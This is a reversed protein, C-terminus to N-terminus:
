RKGGPPQLTSQKGEVTGISRNMEKLEKLVSASFESVEEKMESMTRHIHALEFAIRANIRAEVADLKRDVDQTLAYSSPPPDAKFFRIISLIGNTIPILAVLGLMLYVLPDNAAGNPPPTNALVEFMRGVM